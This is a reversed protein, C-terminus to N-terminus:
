SGLFDYFVLVHGVHVCLFLGCLFKYVFAFYISFCLRELMVNFVKGVEPPGSRHESREMESGKSQGFWRDCKREMEGDYKRKREKRGEWTGSDLSISKIQNQTKTTKNNIQCNM